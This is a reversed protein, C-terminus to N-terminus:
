GKKGFLEKDSPRYLRAKNARWGKKLSVDWLLVYEGGNPRRKEQWVDVKLSITIIGIDPEAKAEFFPGNHGEKYPVTVRAKLPPEEEKAQVM